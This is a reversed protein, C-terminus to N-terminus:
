TEAYLSNVDGKPDEDLFDSCSMCAVMASMLATTIMYKTKKM